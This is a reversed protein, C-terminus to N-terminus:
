APRATVDGNSTSLDLRYRASPADAVGLHSCGDGCGGLVLVGGDEGRYTAAAPRDGRYTVSRHLAVPRGRKGGHM